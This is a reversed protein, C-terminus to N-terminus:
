FHVFSCSVRDNKYTCQLLYTGVAEIIKQRNELELDRLPTLPRTFSRAQLHPQSYFQQQNFGLKQENPLTSNPHSYSTPSFGGVSFNVSYHNLATLTNHPNPPPPINLSFIFFFYVFISTKYLFIYIKRM